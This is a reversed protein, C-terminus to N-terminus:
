FAPHLQFNWTGGSGDQTPMVLSEHPLRVRWTNSNGSNPQDSYFLVSPEDHGVYQGEYNRHTLTDPCSGVHTECFPEASSGVLRMTMTASGHSAVLSLALAVLTLLPM